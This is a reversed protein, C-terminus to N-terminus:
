RAAGFAGTIDNRDFIGGVENHTRGYFTGEISGTQNHTHSFGGDSLSLSAWGMSQVIARTGLNRINTFEIFVVPSSASLDRIEVEADGQIINDPNSTAGVMVGNWTASGTGTPNTGSDNGFSYAVLYRNLVNDGDIVGDLVQSEVAFISGDLWGGYSVVREIIDAGVGAPDVLAGASQSQFMNVGNDMMVASIESDFRELVNGPNPVAFYDLGYTTPSQGEALVASCSAASCTVEIDDLTVAPATGIMVAHQIDTGFLRDAADARMEAISLIQSESFTIPTGGTLTRASTINPIVPIPLGELAPQTPNQTPQGGGSPPTMTTPTGSGGGGGGGCAVLLTLLLVITTLRINM